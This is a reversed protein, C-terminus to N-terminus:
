FELKVYFEYKICCMLLFDCISLYVIKVLSLWFIKWFCFKNVYRSFKWNVWIWLNEMLIVEVIFIEVFFKKYYVCIMYWSWEM